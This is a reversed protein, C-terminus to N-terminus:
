EEKAIPILTVARHGGPWTATVDYTGPGTVQLAYAEEGPWLPADKPDLAMPQGNVTASTPIELARGTLMADQKVCTTTKQGTTQNTITTCKPPLPKWPVSFKAGYPGAAAVVLWYQQHRQAQWQGHSYDATSWASITPGAEYATIYSKVATPYATDFSNPGGSGSNYAELAYEAYRYQRAEAQLQDVGAPINLSPDCPDDAMGLSQWKTAKEPAPWGGSNIQMLGADESTTVGGSQECPQASATGGLCNFTQALVQGSSEHAMVSVVLVNPLGSQAVAPYGLWLTPRAEATGIPPTHVGTTGSMGGGLFVGLAAMFIVFLVILLLPLGGIAGIAWNVGRRAAQQALIQALQEGTSRQESM